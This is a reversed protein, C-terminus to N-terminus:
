IARGGRRRRDGSGLAGGVTGVPISSLLGVLTFAILPIGIYHCLKNGPARHYAEYDEFAVALRSAM